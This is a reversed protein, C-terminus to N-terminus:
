HQAVVVEAQKEFKTAYWKEPTNLPSIFSVSYNIVFNIIGFFAVLFGVFFAVMVIVLILVLASTGESEHDRKWPGGNVSVYEKISFGAFLAAMVGGIFGLKKTKFTELRKELAYKATRSSLYYFTIGIIHILTFSSLLMGIDMFGMFVLIGIACGLIWNSGTYQRKTRDFYVNTFEEVREQIIPDTPCLRKNIYNLGHRMFRAQSGKTITIMEYGDDDTFATLKEEITVLIHEARNNREEESLNELIKVKDPNVDGLMKEQYNTYVVLPFLVFVGLLYSGAFIFQMWDFGKEPVAKDIPQAQEINTIETQEETQIFTNAQVSYTECLVAFLAFLILKKM